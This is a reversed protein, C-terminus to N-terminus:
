FYIEIKYNGKVEEKFRLAKKSSLKSAINHQDVKENWHDKLTLCLEKPPKNWISKTTQTLKITIM